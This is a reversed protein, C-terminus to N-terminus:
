VPLIHFHRNPLKGIQHSLLDNEFPAPIPLDRIPRCHTVGLLYTGDLQPTLLPVMKGGEKTPYEGM